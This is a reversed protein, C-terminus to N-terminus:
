PSQGVFNLETINDNVSVIQPAFNMGKAKVAFTYTEGVQVDIFRYYGFPNTMASRVNGQNDVMTVIAKNVANGSTSFVRGEVTVGAAVPAMVMQVVTNSTSIAYGGGGAGINAGLYQATINHNGETLSSTMLTAVGSSLAVTGLSTAGDFFQVSGTPTGPALSTLPSSATVTATFTVNQTTQSPNPSSTLMTTTSFKNMTFNLCLGGITSTGGGLGDDVVYISWTGNPEIGNYVSAFTSSGGSAPRFFTSPAPAPYPDTEGIANYDSPRFTGGSLATGNPLASGAADDLTLNINNVATVSDGVDSMFEFAQTNPGVLMFDFNSPRLTTLGNVQTTVKGITGVLGSVSINVPYVDAAGSDPMSVGGNNCFQAGTVVTPSNVQQSLSGNSTGFTATGSYTAVITRTGQPSTTMCTAQGSANVAVSTCGAIPSGNNTFAVTGATVPSGGSTVVTTSTFTITQGTLAPNLNSMVTTTTPSVAAATTIDISWGGSVSSAGGGLSDDVIYLSWNGNPNLGNFVSAFTASGAPAPSNYPAAPAPSPFDDTEAGFVINTPRYTGSTIPTSPPCGGTADNDPLQTAASDDLTITINSFGCGATGGVDSIIIFKQGTPAVLLMEIDRPRTTTFNTITVNVDTITGSLGSVNITSPYPTATGPPMSVQRDPISIATSNSFVTLPSSNTQMPFNSESLAPLINSNSYKVETFEFGLSIAPFQILVIMLVCILRLLSHFVLSLNKKM